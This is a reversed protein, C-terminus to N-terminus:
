PKPLTPSKYYPTIILTVPTGKPPVRKPFGFWVNDDNDSGPYNIMAGPVVMIAAVDGTMEPVFKGDYFDSGTYLWPGAMMATSKINHQIWENVPNRRTTGNDDWEVEIAIRAGARVALPVEPYIGTMHGTEDILSFLEKSTPYRLLTFALSLHIPSIETILLAEHIKGQQMCLLYEVLGETMNVKTPVRIERTKQDMTVAGIQYRFDSLKKIQPKVPAAPAAPPTAPDAPPVAPPISTPPTTPAAPSQDQALVLSSVAAFLIVLRPIMDALQTRSYISVTHLSFPPIIPSILINRLNNM